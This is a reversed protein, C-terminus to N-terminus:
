QELEGFQVTEPDLQGQLVVSVSAGAGTIPRPNAFSAAAYLILHTAADAIFWGYAVGNYLPDTNTFIARPFDAASIGASLPNVPGTAPTLAVRAYGAFSAETLDGIVSNPNPTFPATFLGVEMGIWLHTAAILETVELDTFKRTEM